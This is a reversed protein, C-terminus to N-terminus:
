KGKHRAIECVEASTDRINKGRTLTYIWFVLPLALPVLAYIKPIGPLMDSLMNELLWSVVILGAYLMCYGTRYCPSVKKSWLMHFLPLIQVALIMVGTKVSLLNEAALVQQPLLFFM